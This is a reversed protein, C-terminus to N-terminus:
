FGSFDAALPSPASDIHMSNRALSVSVQKLKSSGGRQLNKETLDLGYVLNPAAHTDTQRSDKKCDNVKRPTEKM